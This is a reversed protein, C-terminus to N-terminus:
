MHAAAVGDKWFALNLFESKGMCGDKSSNAAYLSPLPPTFSQDLIVNIYKPCIVHLPHAVLTVAANNGLTM